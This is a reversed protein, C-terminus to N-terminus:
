LRIDIYIQRRLQDIFHRIALQDGLSQRIRLKVDEFSLEGAKHRATVDLVVFKRRPTGAGVEIMPKLGATSDTSLVKQYEPPLDTFPAEEALKPEQPDAYIKALSDFSAGVGGRALADHLSDAQRRAIAIQGASIEPTILIHRALIEAPQTREVNIIHFGFSTEVPPSIEGPRLRFAVDEFEKVMVGRRFWGLEGGQAAAASDGSFRKAAAAFDAGRRLQVVLSEALQLARLRAASDPVPKIIIQRFSVTAPRKPQQDKNQEWFERMQADTPPIPRLKGKQRQAEILRQAYLQRRQEDALWRRWEEVSGFRAQRIQDRFDTESRFQKRVNQYTQEVQDLVEQDTVKISTDREAQQVLIELEVLRDLIQHRLTALAASDTPLTQGQAQQQVMEEEIQSALISRTGVVAVIRDLTQASATATVAFAALLVLLAKM